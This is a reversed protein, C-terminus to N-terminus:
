AWILYFFIILNRLWVLWKGLWVGHYSGCQLCQYVPSNDFNCIAAFRFLFPSWDTNDESYSLLYYTIRLTISYMFWYICLNCSLAAWQDTALPIHVLEDWETFTGRRFTRQGKHQKIPVDTRRLLLCNFLYSIRQDIFFVRIPKM